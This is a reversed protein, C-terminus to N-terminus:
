IRAKHLILDQTLMCDVHDVPNDQIHQQLAIYELHTSLQNKLQEM